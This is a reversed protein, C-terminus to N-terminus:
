NYIMNVSTVDFTSPTVVSNRSRNDSMISINGGSVPDDRLGVVHSLEHAMVSMAIMNRSGGSTIAYNSIRTSNLAISFEILDIGRYVRNIVGFVDQGGSVTVAAVATNNSFNNTQFSIRTDNTWRNWNSVGSQMYSLWNGGQGTHPVLRLPITTTGTYAPMWRAFNHAGGIHRNPDTWRAFLAVSSTIRSENIFRRGGVLASTNFWGVLHRGARTTSPLNNLFDGNAVQRINPNIASGGNPHFSVTHMQLPTIGVLNQVELDNEIYEDTEHLSPQEDYSAYADYMGSEPEDSAFVFSGLSFSLVFVLLLFLIMKSKRM